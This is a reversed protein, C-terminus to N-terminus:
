TAVEGGAVAPADFPGEQDLLVLAVGVLVGEGLLPIGHFAIVIEHAQCVQEVGQGSEGLFQGPQERFKPHPGRNTKDAVGEAAWPQIGLLHLLPQVAGEM